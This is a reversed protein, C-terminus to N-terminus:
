RHWWGEEWGHARRFFVMGRGDQRLKRLWLICHRTADRIHDPGPTYLGMLKLRNDTITSLAESASQTNILRHRVEGDYEKVGQHLGFEIKSRIRVPSLFSSSMNLQQPVFSEVGVALGTPGGLSAVHGMMHAVQVDEPGSVYSEAWALICRATRYGAFLRVPDFWICAVGSVDGPDVWYIRPWWLHEDECDADWIGEANDRIVPLPLPNM